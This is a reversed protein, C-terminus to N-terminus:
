CGWISEHWYLYIVRVKYVKGMFVTVGGGVNRKHDNQM